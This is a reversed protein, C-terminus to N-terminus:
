ECIVFSQVCNNGIDLFGVFIVTNLIAYSQQLMSKAFDQLIYMYKIMKCVYIELYKTLRRIM